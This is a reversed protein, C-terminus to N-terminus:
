TLRERLDKRYRRSVPVRADSHLRAEGDGTDFAVIEAVRDLNIVASRHVRQFGMPQLRRSIGTMTERLPYVRSEVHLNVYNGNAEIWDIDEVRVLFEKGLKKILFRDSITEDPSSDDGDSLYGAEGQLRRLIFRYLYIVVLIMIYSRFDKLYEYGFNAWWDPWYYGHDSRLLRYTFVRAWYMGAVHLLSFVLSFAAHAPVSRKWSPLGIPFRRDFWLIMPILVGQLALSTGEWVVPEWREVSSQIRSHEIWVIAVNTVFAVLLYILWGSVEFLRRNKLYADLTM